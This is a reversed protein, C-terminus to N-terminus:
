FFRIDTPLNFCQRASKVFTIFFKLVGLLLLEVGPEVLAVPVGGQMSNKMPVLINTLVGLVLILFTEMSLSMRVIYLDITEM